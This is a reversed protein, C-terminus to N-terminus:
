RERELFRRMFTTPEDEAYAEGFTRIGAAIADALPLREWERLLSKQLRIARPGARLISAVTREVAADLAEFGVVQEVLGCGHAQAATMSEGTYVMEKTKGWGILSPLLAAEIVSPIGVQVEPMGFSSRESAVRIDCAAAVELGAGLCYGDIRAIVPVPFERLSACFRHMLTIFEEARAADLEVMENIDAGGFFARGGAGTLVMVRVDAEDSLRTVAATLEHLIPTNVINIREAYDLTVRAVLAGDAREDLDAHVTGGTEITM